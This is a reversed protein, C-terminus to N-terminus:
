LCQVHHLIIFPIFLSHALLGFVFCSCLGDTYIFICLDHALYVLLLCVFLMFLYLLLYLMLFALLIYFLM